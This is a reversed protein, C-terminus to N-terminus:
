KKLLELCRPCVKDLTGRNRPEKAICNICIYSECSECLTIDGLLWKGIGCFECIYEIGTRPPSKM